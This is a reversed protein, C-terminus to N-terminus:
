TAMVVQYSRRDSNWTVDMEPDDGYNDVLLDLERQYSKNMIELIQFKEKIMTKELEDYKARIDEVQDSFNKASIQDNILKVLVKKVEDKKQVEMKIVMLDHKKDIEDNKIEYTEHMKQIKSNVSSVKEQIRDHNMQQINIIDPTGQIHKDVPSGMKHRQWMEATRETVCVYDDENNRHILVYGVRCETDPDSISLTERAATDKPNALLYQPNTRFDEYYKRLQDGSLGLDFQGDLDFLIQQNYYALGHMVNFMSNVQIMEIRKIEAAKLYAAYAEQFDGGKNITESFADRGAQVKAQTFDYHDWFIAKTANSPITDVFRAFVNESSYESWLEEWKQLDHELSAKAQARKEELENSESILSAKKEELEAIWLKTEEIKDLIDQAVPNNEIDTIVTEDSQAHVPIAFMLLVFFLIPFGLWKYSISNLNLKSKNSSM